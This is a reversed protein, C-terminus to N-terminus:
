ITSYGLSEITDLLEDERLYLEDYIVDIKGEKAKIECAMIGSQNALAARIKEIAGKNNLNIVRISAKM